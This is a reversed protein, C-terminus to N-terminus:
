MKILFVFKQKGQGIWTLLQITNINIMIKKTIFTHKTCKYASFNSNPLYGWFAPKWIYSYWKHWCEFFAKKFNHFIKSLIMETLIDSYSM